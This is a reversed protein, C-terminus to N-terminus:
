TDYEGNTRRRVTEVGSALAEELTSFHAVVNALGTIKLIRKASGESPAVIVMKQRNTELREAFRYLVHITRSDFYSARVLSIVVVGTDRNAARELALEFEDVNSIDVEGVVEVAPIGNYDHSEFRTAEMMSRAGEKGAPATRGENKGM